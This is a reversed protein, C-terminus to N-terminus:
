THRTRENKSIVINEPMKMYRELEEVDNSGVPVRNM